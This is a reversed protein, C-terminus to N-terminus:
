QKQAPKAAVPEGWVARFEESESADKATYIDRVSSPMGTPGCVIADIFGAERLIQALQFAVAYTMAQAQSPYLSGLPVGNIRRTYFFQRAFRVVFNKVGNAEM